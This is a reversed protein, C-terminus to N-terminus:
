SYNVHSMVERKIFDKLWDEWVRKNIQEPYDSKAALDEVKAIYAELAYQAEPWDLLGNKMDKLYPAHKLPFTIDGESYIEFLQMAARMAHSVAKWDIGKNEAALRARAGYQHIFDDVIELAYSVKATSQILKGCVQYHPMSWKSGADLKHLHEGEPLADWIDGIRWVTGNVYQDARWGRLVDAVQQAANLRSGKIGYKAAQKRAYGVFAKLNKTYFCSRSDKLDDWLWSGVDEWGSPAHLMDIAITQGELALKMFYHISYIEMDLDGAQNRVGEGEKKPHISYSKPVNLLALQDATPIYIGKYDTDSNPGDTGYLHSGHKMLCIVQDEHLGEPLIM